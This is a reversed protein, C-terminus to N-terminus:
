RKRGILLFVGQVNSIPRDVRMFHKYGTLRQVLNLLGLKRLVAKFLTVIILQPSYTFIREIRDIHIIDDFRNHIEQEDSFFRVHGTATFNPVSLVVLMQPKLNGLIVRDNVVHELATSIFCDGDFFKTVDPHADIDIRAIRLRELSGLKEVVHNVAFSSFDSWFYREVSPLRDLITYALDGEAGCVEMIMKPKYAEIWSAIKLNRRHYFGSSYIGWQKKLEVDYFSSPQVSGLL